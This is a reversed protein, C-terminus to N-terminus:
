PQRVTFRTLEAKPQAWGPELRSAERYDLYAEKVKGALEYAVARGFYAIAPRHTRKALAIDFLALAESWGDPRRLVAMGKNLYAEAQSPDLAIAADFDAIAEDIRGTRLKLIGRNVYTAVRDHETTADENLAENCRNMGDPGATTRAEAAEYCLRASTSGIVTVAAAAPGALLALAAAPLYRAIRM